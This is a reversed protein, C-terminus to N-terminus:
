LTCWPFWVSLATAQTKLATLIANASIVITIQTRGGSVNEWNFCLQLSVSIRASHHMDLVGGHRRKSSTKATLCLFKHYIFM